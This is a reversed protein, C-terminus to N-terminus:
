KMALGSERVIPPWKKGERAIFQAFEEPTSNVVGIGLPQMKKQVAKDDTAQVVAKNIKDIVSKPTGAPAVVGVWTSIEGLEPMKAVEHLPQLDPLSELPKDNLKALARLKGDRILPLHPAIGDVAYDLSGDLLGRVVEASGNYPVFVAEIGALKTFLFGALRTTVIGAGYNLKGPNARGKAILEAVTKPGDAPVVLISTNMAALSVPAFDSVKYNISKMAVPNMVLTTDMAMLLTYGDPEAHAVQAAALASGAGPRNEIVVGEGWQEAMHQGLVRALVDTPGGAPFPVVLKVARAPYAAAAEPAAQARVGGSLAVLSSAALGFVALAHRMKM